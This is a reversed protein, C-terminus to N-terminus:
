LLLINAVALWTVSAAVYNGWVLRKKIDHAEDKYGKMYAPNNLLSADKINLNQLKPRTSSSVIAPIIGLLPTGILSTFFIARKGSHQAHYNNDADHTGQYYFKTMSDIRSKNFKIEPNLTDAQAAKDFSVPQEYAIDTSRQAKGTQTFLIFALCAILATLQLKLTKM